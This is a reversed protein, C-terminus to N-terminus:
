CYHALAITKVGSNLLAGGNQYTINNPALFWKGYGQWDSIFQIVTHPFSDFEGMQLVGITSLYGVRIFM